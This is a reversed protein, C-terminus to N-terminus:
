VFEFQVGLDLLLIEKPYVIKAGYLHLGKVADAFRKEPRYAEVSNIQEAFAIARKTRALCKHYLQDTGDDAKAINNSVYVDFGVFNGLYGNTLAQENDSSQLIKAKLLMSAIAPSVELVTDANASVNNALLKERATLLLDIMDAHSVTQKQIVNEESIESWLSYVYRDAADALADAAQRMAQKMLKPTQQAKDIDDIQFNFAKAQTIQLQRTTSDLTQLTSSFDANKSYDFVNVKGIGAIRVTDGKSRIDGEFERNCNSVGIYEKNLENYLTESWVTPIFDNIAM